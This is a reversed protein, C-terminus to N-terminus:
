LGAGFPWAYPDLRAQSERRPNCKAAHRTGDLSLDDHVAAGDLNARSIGREIRAVLGTLVRGPGIELVRTVGAGAMQQVMETFRVPETVQRALLAAFRDADACPAAEVNTIVPASPARFRM